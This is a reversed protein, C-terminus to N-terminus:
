ERIRIQGPEVVWLRRDVIEGGDLVTLAGRLLALTDTISQTHPRLVWVGRHNEPPYVRIDAFDLDFTILIRNESRCTDLVERDPKGGLHQQLATLVDHGAERLLPAADSPLNEDLKFRVAM